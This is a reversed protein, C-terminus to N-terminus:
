DVTNNLFLNKLHNGEEHPLRPPELQFINNNTNATKGIGTNREMLMKGKDDAVLDDRYNLNDFALVLEKLQSKGSICELFPQMSSLRISAQTSIELSELNQKNYIQSCLYEM